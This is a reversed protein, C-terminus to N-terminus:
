ILHSEHETEKNNTGLWIHSWFSHSLASLYGLEQLLKKVPPIGLIQGQYKIASVGAVYTGFVILGAIFAQSLITLISGM